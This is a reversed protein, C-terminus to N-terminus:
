SRTCRGARAMGAGRAGPRAGGDPARVAIGRAAFANRLATAFGAAGPQDGHLCVTGPTVAVDTGEVSRVRREEVRRVAQDVAAAVDTIVATPHSPPTLTDDARYTRDAFVEAVAPVGIAVAAATMATGAQAYLVVGLERAARALAETLTADCAAM